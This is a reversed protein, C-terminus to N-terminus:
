QNTKQENITREGKNDPWFSDEPLQEGLTLIADFLNDDFVDRQKGDVTISVTDSTGHMGLVLEHGPCGAQNCDNSCTYHKRYYMNSM